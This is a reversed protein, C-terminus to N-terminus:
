YLVGDNEYSEPAEIVIAEPYVFYRWDKRYVKLTRERLGEASKGAVVLDIAQEMTLKLYERQNTLKGVPKRKVRKNLTM